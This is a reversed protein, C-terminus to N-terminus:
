LGPNVASKNALGPSDYTCSTNFQTTIVNSIASINMSINGCKAM